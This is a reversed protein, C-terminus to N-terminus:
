HESAALGALTKPLSITLKPTWGSDLQDRFNLEGPNFQDFGTHVLTLLTGQEAPELTYRVESYRIPGGCWSYALSTLPDIELVECAFRGQFPESVEFHFKHGVEAQFTTPMLWTSILGPETIARWVREIRHDLRHEHVVAGDVIM